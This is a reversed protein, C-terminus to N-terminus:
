YDSTCKVFFYMEQSTGKSYIMIKRGGSRGRRKGKGKKIDNIDAMGLLLAIKSMSLGLICKLLVMIVTNTNLHSPTGM